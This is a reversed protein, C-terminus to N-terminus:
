EFVQQADKVGGGTQSETPNELFFDGWIMFIKWNQTQEVFQSERQSIYGKGKAVRDLVETFKAKDDENSMDFTGVHMDTVLVPQRHQPDDHKFYPVVGQKTRFPINNMGKYYQWRRLSEPDMGTIDPGAPEM